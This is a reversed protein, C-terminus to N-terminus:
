ILQSILYQLHACCQTFSLTHRLAEHEACILRERRWRLQLTLQMRRETPPDPKKIFLSINTVSIYNLIAAPGSPLEELLSTSKNPKPIYIQVKQM